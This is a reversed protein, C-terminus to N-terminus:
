ENFTYINVKTQVPAKSIVTNFNYKHDGAEFNIKLPTNEQKFDVTFVFSLNRTDPIYVLKSTVLLPKGKVLTKWNFYVEVKELVSVKKMSLNGAMMDSHAFNLYDISTETKPLTMIDIEEEGVKLICSLNMSKENIQYDYEKIGFSPYFGQEEIIVDHLFALSKEDFRYVEYKPDYHLKLDPVNQMNQLKLYNFNVFRMFNENLDMPIAHRTPSERLVLTILDEKVLSSFNDKFLEMFLSGDKSKAEWFM